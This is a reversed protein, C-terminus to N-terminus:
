RAADIESENRTSLVKSQVRVDRMDNLSELRELADTRDNLYGIFFSTLARQTLTIGRAVPMFDFPEGSREASHRTGSGCGASFAATLGCLDSVSWHGADALDIQWAPPNAASYNDRIFDNGIEQISNDEEALILLVPVTIDTMIVGPLFVNEMPAALGAVASIRTDNQTVLGATVSGFSHGFLGIRDSDIKLPQTARALRFLSGDLAKDILRTIDDSRKTLQDLSLPEGAANMTFPLAGAHDMSLVVMGHSALREALSFSSYRGCNHCHSFILLPLEELGVRATANRLSQTTRTTCNLPSQQMLGDLMDRGLESDEFDLITDPTEVAITGPYWIEVVAIRDTLEVRVTTNAVPHPGPTWPDHGMPENRPSPDSCATALIVLCCVAFGVFGAKTRFSRTRPHEVDLGSRTGSGM